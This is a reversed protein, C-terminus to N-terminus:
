SNLPVAPVSTKPGPDTPLTPFPTDACAQEIDKNSLGAPFHAKGIVPAPQPILESCDILTDPNQGLMSLDHFVFAFMDQAKQQNNVFSQWECATRSDRALLHDTQLRIEGKLPSMVEGHNGGKGPFATGRLQTEIFFQTDWIHPTSDMPTGPITEDLHDSAAITHATLLWVTLIEDFEGNSADALRAFVDELTDFPEPVLGDPAPRTADKRGLFFDLRPAGPCNSAGLAGAFMIFDAHSLNHRAIIPKQAAVIEDLGINAHFNTEIEPFIAISGDAGGGGFQGKAELAPSISIADHFTIRLSEHAEEGCQGGHFLNQQIDDRVAFLQCCAANSATNKGDPCAVRRTLAASAGQLAAFLSVISVLAKFAM